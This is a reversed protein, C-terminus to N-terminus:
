RKVVKFVEKSRATEIEVFYIGSGFNEMDVEVNNENVELSKIMKGSISVVKLSEIIQQGKINFSTNFPNPYLQFEVLTNDNLSLNEDVVETSYNNTIIPANFDFYIEADNEFTDGLTLTSFTKIKFIVFGDNNNDDFPLQINEFIFEVENNNINTRFDHSGELPVLTSIDYKTIDIEDKVVINTANASGNNEFQIKYHVYEGVREEFIMRGELCQKDNPDYSNVVDQFIEMINDEPTQDIENSNVDFILNLFDGENLPFIPDTPTNLLFNAEINRTEFPALDVFDWSLINDIESDITPTADVFQMVDSSASYNLNVSGSLSTNGKNKYYITYNSEFGPIAAGQSIYIELDNYVGTPIICFDQSISAGDNPFDVTVTNPNVQYYASNEVEVSINYTGENVEFDYDGSNNSIYISTSEGDDITFKLNPYPVDNDDCGNTNADIKNEGSIAYTTGGPDFSCYTNLVTNTGALAEIISIEDYDACVYNYNSSPSSMFDYGLFQSGNKINLYDINVGEVLFLELNPNNSLDLESLVASEIRLQELGTSNSVDLFTLSSWYQSFEILSVCNSLDFSSVSTATMHLYELNTQNSFDLTTINPTGYLTFYKLNIFSNIDLNYIGFTDVFTLDEMTTDCQCNSWNVTTFSQGNIHLNSLSNLNVLDLEQASSNVRLIELNQFDQIVVTSISSLNYHLEQLNIFSELGVLSQPYMNGSDTYHDLVLFNVSEAESVQIEGDNNTDINNGQNLLISKLDADPINVIQAHINTTFVLFLVLITYKRM